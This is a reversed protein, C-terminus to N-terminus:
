KRKIDIRACGNKEKTCPWKIASANKGCPM